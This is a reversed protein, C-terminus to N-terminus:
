YSTNIENTLLLFFLSLSFFHLSCFSLFHLSPSLSTLFLNSEEQPACICGTSVNSQNKSHNSDLWKKEERKEESIRMEEAEVTLRQGRTRVQNFCEVAIEGERRMWHISLTSISFSSISSSLFLFQSSLSRCTMIEPFSGEGLKKEMMLKKGALIKKKKGRKERAERGWM